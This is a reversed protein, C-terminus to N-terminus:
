RVGGSRLPMPCCPSFWAVNGGRALMCAAIRSAISAEQLGKTTTQSLHSLIKLSEVANTVTSLRRPM